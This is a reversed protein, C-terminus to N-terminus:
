ALSNKMRIKIKIDLKLDVAFLTFIFLSIVKLVQMKRFTSKEPKCPRKVLERVVVSVQLETM